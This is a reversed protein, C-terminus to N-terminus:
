VFLHPQVVQMPKCFFFPFVRIIVLCRFEKFLNILIFKLHESILLKLSCASVLALCLVVTTLLNLNFSDLYFINPFPRLSIKIRSKMKKCTQVNTGLLLLMIVNWLFTLCLFFHALSETVLNEMFNVPFCFEFNHKCTRSHNTM